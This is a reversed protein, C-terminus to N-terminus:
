TTNMPLWDLSSFHMGCVYTSGSYAAASWQMGLPSRLTLEGGLALMDTPNFTTGVRCRPNEGPVGTEEEM